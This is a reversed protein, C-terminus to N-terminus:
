FWQGGTQYCTFSALDRNCRWTVVNYEPQVERGYFTVKMLHKPADDSCSVDSMAYGVEKGLQSAAQTNLPVSGCEKSEGALWNSSVSISTDEQHSIWGMTDLWEYGAYIASGVFYLLLLFGIGTRIRSVLSRPEEAPEPRRKEQLEREDATTVIHSMTPEDLKRRGFEESAAELAEPTYDRSRVHLIRYLEEDTKLRM